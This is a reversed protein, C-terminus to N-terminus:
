VPPDGGLAVALLARAKRWERKVTATSLQLVRASEEVSLGAFVRLEVVRVLRPDVDELQALAEHIALLRTLADTAAPEPAAEERRGGAAAAGGRKSAARRRAHDVLVQRMASAAVAFFHERGQLSAGAGGVLKLYAEHVLATTDLTGDRGAFRLQRRAVAKLEDYVLPVLRQLAESDGARWADLLRTVDATM